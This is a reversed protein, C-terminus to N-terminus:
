GLNAKWGQGGEGASAMRTASLALVRQRGVQQVDVTGRSGAGGRTEGGASSVEPSSEEPDWCIVGEERLRETVVAQRHSAM